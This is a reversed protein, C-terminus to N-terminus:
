NKQSHSCVTGQIPTTEGSAILNIHVGIASMLEARGSHSRVTTSMSRRDAFNLWAEPTHRLSGISRVIPFSHHLFLM